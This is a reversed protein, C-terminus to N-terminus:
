KITFTETELVETVTRIPNVHYDVVFELHRPEKTLFVPMKIPLIQNVCGKQSSDKPWALPVKTIGVIYVQVDADADVTKCYNLKLELYGGNEIQKGPNNIKVRTTYVKKEGNLVLPDYPYFTWFYVLLITAFSLILTIMAIIFFIRVKLTKDTINKSETM